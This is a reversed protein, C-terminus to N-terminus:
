VAPIEAEWEDSEDLCPACCWVFAAVMASPSLPGTVIVGMTSLGVASLISNPTLGDVDVPLVLARFLAADADVDAWDFPPNEDRRREGLFPPSSSVAEIMDVVELDGFSLSSLFRKNLRFLERLGVPRALAMAAEPSAM